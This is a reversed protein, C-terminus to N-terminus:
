WGPDKAIPRLQQRSTALLRAADTAENNAMMQPRKRGSQEM